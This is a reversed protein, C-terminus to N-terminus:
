HLRLPVSKNMLLIRSKERLEPPNRFGKNQYTQRKSVRRKRVAVELRKNRFDDRNDTKQRGTYALLLVKVM